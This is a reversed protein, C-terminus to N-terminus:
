ESPDVGIGTLYWEKVINQLISPVSAHGMLTFIEQPTYKTARGTGIYASYEHRKTGGDSSQLMGAMIGKAPYYLVTDDNFAKANFEIDMRYDQISDWSTNVGAYAWLSISSALLLCLLLKKM